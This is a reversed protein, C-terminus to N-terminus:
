FGPEPLWSRTLWDSLGLVFLIGLWFVAAGLFLANFRDSGRLNMFWYAVLLAKVVAITMAAPLNAPGLDVIAVGVTAALLAMLVAFVIAYAAPTPAHESM